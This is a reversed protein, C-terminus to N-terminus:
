RLDTVIWKSDFIAQPKFAEDSIRSTLKMSNVDIKILTGDNLAFSMNRIAATDNYLEINLFEMDGGNIPVLSFITSKGDPSLNAVNVRFSERLGVFVRAPNTLFSTQQEAAVTEIVVEKAVPDLVWVSNGYCYMEVGNGKVIWNEDQSVLQGSAKNDIGSIRATYSYDIYVCSSAVDNCMKDLLSNDQASSLWSLMLFVTSFIYKM